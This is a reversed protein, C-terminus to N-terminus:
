PTISLCSTEVSIPKGCRSRCDRCGVATCSASARIAIGEPCRETYEDWLMTLTVHKRKFERHLEAWDPEAYRRHGQKPGAAAFPAAELAADTV